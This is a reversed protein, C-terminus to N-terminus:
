STTSELNADITYPPSLVQGGKYTFAFEVEQGKKADKPPTFTMKRGDVMTPFEKGNEAPLAIMCYRM